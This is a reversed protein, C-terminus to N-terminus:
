DPLSSWFLSECQAFVSDCLMPMVQSSPGRAPNRRDVAATELVDLTDNNKFSRGQHVVQSVQGAESTQDSGCLELRM